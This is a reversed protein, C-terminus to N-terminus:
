RTFRQNIIDKNRVFYDKILEEQFAKDYGLWKSMEKEQKLLEDKKTNDTIQSFDEVAQAEGINKAAGLISPVQNLARAFNLAQNTQPMAQVVTGSGRTQQVTPALTIESPDYSVHVRRDTMGFMSKLNEKAM